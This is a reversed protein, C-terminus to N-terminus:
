AYMCRIKGFQKGFQANRQEDCGVLCSAQDHDPFLQAFEIRMEAAERARHAEGVIACAQRDARLALHPLKYILRLDSRFQLRYIRVVSCKERSASMVRSVNANM